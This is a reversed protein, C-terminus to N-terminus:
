KSVYYCMAVFIIICSSLKELTCFHTICFPALVRTFAILCESIGGKLTQNGSFSEATDLARKGMLGIQLLVLLASARVGSHATLPLSGKHRM